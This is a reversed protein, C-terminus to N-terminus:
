YQQKDRWGEEGGTVRARKEKKKKTGTLLRHPWVGAIGQGLLCGLSRGLCWGLQIHYKHYSARGPAEGIWEFVSLCKLWTEVLFKLGARNSDNFLLYTTWCKHFNFITTHLSSVHLMLSSLTICSVNNLLTPWMAALLIALTGIDNPTGQLKSIDQMDHEYLCNNHGIIKGNNKWGLKVDSGYRYDMYKKVNNTVNESAKHIQSKDM